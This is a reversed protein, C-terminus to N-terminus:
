QLRQKFWDASIDGPHSTSTHCFTTIFLLYLYLLLSVPSTNSGGAFTLKHWTFIVVYTAAFEYGAVANSARNLIANDTSSRYYVHGIDNASIDTSTTFVYIFYAQNFDISGAGYLQFLYLYFYLRNIAVYRTCPIQIDHHVDYMCVYICLYVYICMSVYMRVCLTFKPM